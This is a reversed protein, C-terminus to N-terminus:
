LVESDQDDFLLSDAANGSLGVSDNTISQM